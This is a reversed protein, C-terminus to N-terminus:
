SGALELVAPSVAINREPKPPTHPGCVRQPPCKEDPEGTTSPTCNPDCQPRCKDEISRASFVRTLMGRVGVFEESALIDSMSAEHLNGIRFEGQRAFICPQVSGDPLVAVVGNACNGCLERTTEPTVDDRVGRGVQRLRDTRIRDPSVGLEILEAVAGDINQGDQVDVVGVRFEIGNETAWRINKRIPNHTNRKTIQRHVGPDPSYYSTALYVRDKNQVFLEKLGPKLHVMNTYVEVAMEDKALAYKILDPLDPHLSPEGGILQVMRAGHEHLGDIAGKWQETTMNGRSGNPGSEAYCHGCEEQCEGTVELWASTVVKSVPEKVLVEGNRFGAAGLHAVGPRMNEQPAIYQETM